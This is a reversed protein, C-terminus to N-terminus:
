MGLEKVRRYFTSRAMGLRRAAERKDGGTQRLMATIAEREAAIEAQLAAVDQPAPAPM